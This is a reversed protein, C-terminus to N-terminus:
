RRRGFIYVLLAIIALVVLVVILVGVFRSRKFAQRGSHASVSYGHTRADFGSPTLAAIRSVRDAPGTGGAGM